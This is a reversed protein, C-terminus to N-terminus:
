REEQEEQEPYDLLFMYYTTYENERDKPINTIDVLGDKDAVFDIYAFYKYVLEQKSLYAAIATHIDLQVHNTIRFRSTILETKLFYSEPDLDMGYNIIKRSIFTTNKKFRPVSWAWTWTRSQNNYVGIIEYRSELIQNKNSDFMMIVNHETDKEANVFKIYKVKKFLHGYRETNRDYYELSDVVVNVATPSTPAIIDEM